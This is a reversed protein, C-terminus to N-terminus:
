GLIGEAYTLSIRTQQTCIICQTTYLDTGRNLIHLMEGPVCYLNM